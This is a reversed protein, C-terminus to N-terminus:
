KDLYRIHAADILGKCYDDLAKKQRKSGLEETIQKKREEYPVTTKSVLQLLTIGEDSEQIKTVSGPALTKIHKKEAAIDSEKLEIPDSWGVEDTIEGSEIQRDVTARMIAKSGLGFPVFAQKVSYLVIPHEDYFKKRESESVLAKSKVREAVTTEVLLGKELEKKAQEFTYGREKFFAILEERSKKLSEQIRALHRDLESESITIKFKKADLLILEKLIAERLTPAQDSLDPRLDSQLIVIRGESHYIIALIKDATIRRACESFTGVALLIIGFFLSKPIYAM